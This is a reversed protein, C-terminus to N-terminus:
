NTKSYEDHTLDWLVPYRKRGIVVVRDQATSLVSLLRFHWWIPLRKYCHPLLALASRNFLPTCPQLHMHLSTNFQQQKTSQQYPSHRRRFLALAYSRTYVEIQKRQVYACTKMLRRSLKDCPNICYLGTM